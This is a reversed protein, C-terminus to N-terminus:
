RILILKEVLSGLTSVLEITYVGAPLGSMDLQSSQVSSGKHVLRGNLDYIRAEWSFDAEIFVTNVAPNPFITYAERLLAKTSTSQDVIAEVETVCSNGDSISILYDGASLNKFTFMTDMGVDTDVRSSDESVLTLTYPATSPAYSIKIEGNDLNASTTTTTVQDIIPGQLQDIVIVASDTCGVADVATVIYEGALLDERSAGEGGDSWSYLIPTTGGLLELDAQGLDDPRCEQIETSLVNLACYGPPLPFDNNLVGLGSTSQSYSVYVRYNEDNAGWLQWDPYKVNLEHRTLEDSIFHLAKLEDLSRRGSGHFTFLMNKKKADYFEKQTGEMRNYFAEKMGVLEEPSFIVLSDFEWIVSDKSEFVIRPTFGLHMEAPLANPDDILDMIFLEFDSNVNQYIDAKSQVTTLNLGETDCPETVTIRFKGNNTRMTDHISVPCLSPYGWPLPYHLGFASQGFFQVQLHTNTEGAQYFPGEENFRIQYNIFAGQYLHFIEHVLTGTTLGNILSTAGSKTPEKFFNGAGGNVPFAFVTPSLDDVGFELLDFDAFFPEGWISDFLPVLSVDNDYGTQNYSPEGNYRRYNRDYDIYLGNGIHVVTSDPTLYFVNIDDLGELFVPNFYLYTMVFREEGLRENSENYYECDLILQTPLYTEIWDQDVWLLENSSFIKDGALIDGNTGDDVFNLVEILFQREESGYNYRYQGVIRTVESDEKLQIQLLETRAGTIVLNEQIPRGTLFTEVQAKGASSSFGFLLM